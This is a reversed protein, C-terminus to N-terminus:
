PLPKAAGLQAERRGNGQRKWLKWQGSAASALFWCPDILLLQLQYNGFNGSIEHLFPTEKM